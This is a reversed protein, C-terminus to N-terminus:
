DIIVFVHFFDLLWYQALRFMLMFRNLVRLFQCTSIQMAHQDVQDVDEDSAFPEGISSDIIQTESYYRAPATMYKRGIKEPMLMRAMVYDAPSICDKMENTFGPEGRPFLLQYCLGEVHESNIKVDLISGNTTTGQLSIVGTRRCNTVACVSMAMLPPQDVM